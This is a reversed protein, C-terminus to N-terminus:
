VSPGILARRQRELVDRHQEILKREQDFIQKEVAVSLYARVGFDIFSERSAQYEELHGQAKWLPANEENIREVLKEASAQLAARDPNAIITDRGVMLHLMAEILTASCILGFFLQGFYVFQDLLLGSQGVATGNMAASVAAAVSSEATAGWRFAYLAAYLFISLLSVGRWVKRWFVSAAGVSSVIIWEVVLGVALWPATAAMAKGWNDLQHVQRSAANVWESYTVFCWLGLIAVLALLRWDLPITYHDRENKIVAPLAEAERRTVGADTSLPEILRRAAAIRGDFAAKLQAYRADFLRGGQERVFQLSEGAFAAVRAHLMYAAIAAQTMGFAPAPVNGGIGFQTDGGVPKGHSYTGDPHYGVRDQERYDAPAPSPAKVQPKPQRFLSALRSAMSGNAGHGNSSSNNNTNM